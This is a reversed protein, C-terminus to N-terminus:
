SRPGAWCCNRPPSGLFIQLGPSDKRKPASEKIEGKTRDEVSRKDRTSGHHATEGRLPLSHTMVNRSWKSCEESTQAM